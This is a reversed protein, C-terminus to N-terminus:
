VPDGVFKGARECLAKAFTRRKTHAGVLIVFGSMEVDPCSATLIARRNPRHALAQSHGSPGIGSSCVM